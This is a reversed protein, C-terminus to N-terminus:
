GASVKEISFSTGATDDLVCEFDVTAVFEQANGPNGDDYGTIATKEGRFIYGNGGDGVEVEFSFTTDTNFADAFANDDIYVRMQGTVVCQGARVGRVSDPGIRKSPTLNNDVKLTLGEFDFSGTLGNGLTISAVDLATLKIESSPAAYTAGTIQSTGTVLSAGVVGWQATIYQEPTINLDLTGMRCKVFRRFMSASIKREFSFYDVVSGGAKAINSSYANGMLAQFLLDVEPGYVLEHTFGQGVDKSTGRSAAVVRQPTVSNSRVNSKNLKLNEQTFDIQNFAPTAPTVGPTVEKIFALRGSSTEAM